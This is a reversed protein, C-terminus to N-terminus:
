FPIPHFTDIEKYILYMKQLGESESTRVTLAIGLKNKSFMKLVKSDLSRGGKGSALGQV